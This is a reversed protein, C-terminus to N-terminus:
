ARLTPSEPDVDVRLAAEGAGVVLVEGLSAEDEHAASEGLLLPGVRGGSLLAASEDDGCLIDVEHRLLTLPIVEPSGGYAREDM